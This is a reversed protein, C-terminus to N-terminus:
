KEAKDDAKKKPLLDFKYTGFFLMFVKLCYFAYPAIKPLSYRSNKLQKRIVKIEAPDVIQYSLFIDLFVDQMKPNRLYENVVSMLEDISTSKPIIINYAQMFKICDDAKSKNKVIEDNIIKHTSSKLYCLNGEDM